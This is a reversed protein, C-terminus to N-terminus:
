HGKLAQPCTPDNKRKGARIELDNISRRNYCSGFSEKRRRSAAKMGAISVDPIPAVRV